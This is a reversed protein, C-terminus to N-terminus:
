LRREIHRSTRGSTSLVKLTWNRSSTHDVASSTRPTEDNARECSMCPANCLPYGTESPAKRRHYQTTTTRTSLPRHTRCTQTINACGHEKRNNCYGLTPDAVCEQHIESPLCNICLSYEQAAQEGHRDAQFQRCVKDTALENCDLECSVVLRSM